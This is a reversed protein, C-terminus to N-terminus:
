LGGKTEKRVGDNSEPERPPLVVGSVPQNRAAEPDQEAASTRDIVSEVITLPRPNVQRYIRALYEGIIGLFIANIALSVLVLIALTMFGAPWTETLTLWLVLYLLVTVAALTAVVLGIVSALRLPLISHSVIGDLALNVLSGFNFGSKGRQRERRDYDVGIQRYGLSAIYGRLYPSEDRYQHLLDLV